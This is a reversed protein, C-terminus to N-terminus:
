SPAEPAPAVRRHLSLGARYATLISMDHVEDELRQQLLMSLQMIRMHTAHEEERHEKAEHVMGRRQVRVDYMSCFLLSALVITLRDGQGRFSRDHPGRGVHTGLLPPTLIRVM